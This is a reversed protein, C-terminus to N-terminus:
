SNLPPWPLGMRHHFTPCAVGHVELGLDQQARAVARRLSEDYRGTVPQGLRLQVVSVKIGEDGVRLGELPLQVPVSVPDGGAEDIAKQVVPEPAEPEEARERRIIKAM